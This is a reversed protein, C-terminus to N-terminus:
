LVTKSTIKYNIKNYMKLLILMYRVATPLLYQDLSCTDSGFYASSQKEGVNGTFSPTSM